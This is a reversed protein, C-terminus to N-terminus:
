LYLPNFILEDKHEIKQFLVAKIIRLPKYYEIMYEPIIFCIYKSLHKLTWYIETLIESYNLCGKDFPKEDTIRKNLDSILKFIYM